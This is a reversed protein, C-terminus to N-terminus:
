ERGKRSATATSERCANEQEKKAQTKVHIPLKVKNPRVLVKLSISLFSGILSAPCEEKEVEQRHWAEDAFV